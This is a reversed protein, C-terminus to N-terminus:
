GKRRSIRIAVNEADPLIDPKSLKLTAGQLAFEAFLADLMAGALAELLFFESNLAVQKLTEAVRAYDITDSVDDSAVAPALDVELVLDVLLPRRATREWDYVGILSQVQLGEIIVNDM